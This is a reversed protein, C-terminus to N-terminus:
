VLEKLYGKRLLEILVKEDCDMYNIFTRVQDTFAKHIVIVAQCEHANYINKVAIDLDSQSVDVFVNNTPDITWWGSNDHFVPIIHFANFSGKLRNSM